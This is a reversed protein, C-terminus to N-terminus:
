AAPEPKVASIWAQAEAIARPGALRRGEAWAARFEAEGLVQRTREMLPGALMRDSRDLAWSELEGQREASAFLLAAHRWDGLAALLSASTQLQPTTLAAGRPVESTIKLVEMVRPRAAILDGRAIAVSAVKLLSLILDHPANSQRIAAIAQEYMSAALDLQGTTRLVDATDSLIKGTLRPVGLDGAVRLATELCEMAEKPRQTLALLNGYLNLAQSLRRPNRLERAISVCEQGAALVEPLAGHGAYFAMTIFTLLALCRAHNRPEAGPRSLFKGAVRYGLEIDPTLLWTLRTVGILLLGKQVGDDATECWAFASLINDRDFALRINAAEGQRASEDADRALSLFYDLHRTRLAPEEATERLRDRSYERVTELMHYRGSAEDFVAMSKEVLEPLVILVDSEQLGGDACIKQAAELTWGGAFVSLRRLLVRESDSLLDHSWDIMARLTQHRPIESRLGGALLSFRDNLHKVISELALTSVRAAALEIALPIGDLRVCLEGVAHANAEGLGFARSRARARIAAPM